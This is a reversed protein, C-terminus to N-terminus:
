IRRRNKFDVQIVNSEPEPEAAAKADEARWRAFERQAAFAVEPSCGLERQIELAESLGDLLGGAM